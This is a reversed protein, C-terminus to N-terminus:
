AAATATPAIASNTAADLSVAPPSSVNSENSLEIPRSDPYTMIYCINFYLKNKPNNCFNIVGGVGFALHILQSMLVHVLHSYYLRSYGSQFTDALQLLSCCHLPKSGSTTQKRLLFRIRKRVFSQWKARLVFIRLM